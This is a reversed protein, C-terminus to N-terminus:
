LLYSLFIQFYIFIFPTFFPSDEIIQTFTVLSISTKNLLKFYSYSAFSQDFLFGRKSKQKFM